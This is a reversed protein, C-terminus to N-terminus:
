EGGKKAEYIKNNLSILLLAGGQWTKIALLEDGEKVLFRVEAILGNLEDVDKQYKADIKETYILSDAVALIVEANALNMELNDKKTMNTSVCGVMVLLMIGVLWKKM